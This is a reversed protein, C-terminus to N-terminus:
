RELAMDMYSRVYNRRLLGLTQKWNLQVQYMWNLNATVEGNRAYCCVDIPKGASPNPITIYLNEKNQRLVKAAQLRTVPYDNSM